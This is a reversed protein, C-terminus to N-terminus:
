PTGSPREKERGYGKVDGEGDDDVEEEAEEKAGVASDREAGNWGNM